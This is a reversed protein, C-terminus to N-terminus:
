VLVAHVLRRPKGVIGPFLVLSSRVFLGRNLMLFDVLKGGSPAVAPASSSVVVATTASAAAAVAAGLVPEELTMKGPARTRSPLIAMILV